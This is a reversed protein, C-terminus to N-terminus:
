PQQLAGITIIIKAKGAETGLPMRDIVLHNPELLSLIYEAVVKDEPEFQVVTHQYNKQDADGISIIRVEKDQLAKAISFVQDSNGNGNLLIVTTQDLINKDPVIVAQISVKQKITAPQKQKKTPLAFFVLLPILLCFFAIVFLRNFKKLQSTKLIKSSTKIPKIKEIKEEPFFLMLISVLLVILSSGLAIFFAVNGLGTLKYWIIIFTLGTFGAVMLYDM